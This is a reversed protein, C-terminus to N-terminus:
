KFFQIGPIKSDLSRFCEVWLEASISSQGPDRALKGYGHDFQIKNIDELGADKLYGELQYAVNIDFGFERTSWTQLAAQKKLQPLTAPNQPDIWEAEVLQIYGGPKLIDVHNKIM